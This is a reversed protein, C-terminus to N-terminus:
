PGPKMRRQSRWFLLGAAALVLLVAVPLIWWLKNGGSVYPHPNDVVLTVSALDSYNAGDFARADFKHPGNKLKTTDVKYTWNDTNIAVLWTGGDARVHVSMINVEGKTATGQLTIKARITTGDAPSTIACKPRAPPIVPGEVRIVFSQEAYGGKGDTVNVIITQNGIQLTTPTWAIRGTAPDITMGEPRNVISFNLTDNDDDIASANYTYPVGVTANAVPKTTFRPPNNVTVHISFNQYATARGDGVAVSVDYTGSRPPIWTIRGGESITMNEPKPPLRFTLADHDGDVATIQYVYAIGATANIPPTSTIIPPDNVNQIVIDFSESVM